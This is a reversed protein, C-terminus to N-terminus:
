ELVQVESSMVGDKRVLYVLAFFDYIAHIAMVIYLNGSVQYILGLYIGTVFAYVAYDISIYHLLGFILSTLLIGTWINFKAVLIGQLWGRFLLEEGAGAFLAILALDLIPSNVFLPRVKEELEMRLRVFPRWTSRMSILLGAFMPTCFLLAYVTALVSIHFNMWVDLKAFHTLALGVLFLGGEVILATLLLTKRTM